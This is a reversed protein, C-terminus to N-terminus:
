LWDVAREPGVILIPFLSGELPHDIQDRRVQLSERLRMDIMKRTVFDGRELPQCHAIGRALLFKVAQQTLVTEHVQKPNDPLAEASRSLVIRQFCEFREIPV